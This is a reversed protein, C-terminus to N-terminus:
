NSRGNRRNRVLPLAEVDPAAQAEVWARMAPWSFIVRGRRKFYHEREVLEGSHMLNRITQEAYPIRAALQRVSLYCPESDAPSDSSGISAGPQPYYGKVRMGVVASVRAFSYVMVGILARDRLGVLTTADISEILARTEEVSLVPTSGRKTIHKPGRVSHAPNVLMVHGTVLWDFLMRIAALHQKVSPTALTEQRQEVYAAVLM